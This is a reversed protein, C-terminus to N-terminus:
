GDGIVCRGTADSFVGKIIGGDADGGIWHRLLRVWRGGDVGELPAVEVDRMVVGRGGRSM